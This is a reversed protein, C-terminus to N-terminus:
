SQLESTHEESRITFNQSLQYPPRNGVDGYQQGDEPLPWFPPNGNFVFGPYNTTGSFWAFPKQTKNNDFVPSEFSGNVILNQAHASFGVLALVAISTIKTKNM